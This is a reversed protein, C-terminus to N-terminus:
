PLRYLQQLPFGHIRLHSIIRRIIIASGILFVSLHSLSNCYIPFSIESTSIYSTGCARRRASPNPLISRGPIFSPAALAASPSSRGPWMSFVAAGSAIDWNSSTMTTCQRRSWSPITPSYIAKRHFLISRRFRKLILYQRSHILNCLIKVM